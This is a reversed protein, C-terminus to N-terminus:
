ASVGFLTFTTGVAFLGTTTLVKVSTIAATNAWRHLNMQTSSFSASDRRSLCNKQKDVASYDMINAIMMGSTNDWRGTTWDTDGSSSQSEPTSNAYVTSYNAGTDANVQIKVLHNSLTFAGNAVLVLDRYSGSISAFTCSTAAVSVTLNALATYASVGAPM